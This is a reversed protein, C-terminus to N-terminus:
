RKRPTVGATELARDVVRGILADDVDFGTILLRMWITAHIPEVVDWGVVGAPLEGRQIGRDVIAQAVEVRGSWFRQRLEGLQEDPLVFAARLLMVITPERLMAAVSDALEQLDERLSDRHPDPVMGQTLETLLDLMLGPKNGWRRHVTSLHVGAREAVRALSFAEYGRDTLEAVAAALVAEKVRASRGGTRLGQYVQGRPEAPADAAPETM